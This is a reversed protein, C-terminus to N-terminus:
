IFPTNTTHLIHVSLVQIGNYNTIRRKLFKLYFDSVHIIAHLNVSSFYLQFDVNALRSNRVNGAAVGASNHSQM